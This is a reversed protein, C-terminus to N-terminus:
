RVGGARAVVAVIVAEAGASLLARAAHHCTAGTTMVDDVLLVREGKIRRFRSPRFAGRVNTKRDTPSLFHQRRTGLRKALLRTRLKLGLREALREAISEAQNYGRLWESWRDLPVPAVITPRADELELKRREYLLDALAAALRHGTSRKLLLCASALDGRYLGLRIAREFAFREGRCVDCGEPRTQMYPGVRAGCRWCQLDDADATLARRARDSLYGDAIPEGWLACRPPYLLRLAGDRVDRAMDVLVGRARAKPVSM